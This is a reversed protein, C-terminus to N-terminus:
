ATILLIVAHVASCLDWPWAYQSKPIGTFSMCLTFTKLLNCGLYSLMFLIAVRLRM